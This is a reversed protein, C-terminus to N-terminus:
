TASDMGKEDFLSGSIKFRNETFSFEASAWIICFVIFCHSVGAMTPSTLYQALDKSDRISKLVELSPFFM